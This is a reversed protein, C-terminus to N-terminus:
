SLGRAHINDAVAAEPTDECMEKLRRLAKPWLEVFRPRHEETVDHEVIVETMDEITRLSYNELAGFWGEAVAMSSDSEGDKLIGEHKFSVFEGAKLEVIEAVMGQGNGDFFITKSGKKWEAQISGNKTFASSWQPYTDKGWLTKWVREIPAHITTSFQLREM